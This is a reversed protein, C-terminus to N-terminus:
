YRGSIRRRVLALPNEEIDTGEAAPIFPTHTERFMQLSSKGAYQDLGEGEAAAYLGNARLYEYALADAQTRSMGGAALEEDTPIYGSGAIIDVLNKYNDQMQQYKFQEASQRRNEADSYREYEMQALGSAAGLQTALRDNEAQYREYAGSYLEPMISNLKELYSGYQQQGVAQAYSSGYGGTLDAAQGMSDKMALRGQKQYNDKYAGYVPDTSYDYKFGERNVIKNYTNRIENDYSGYARGESNVDELKM